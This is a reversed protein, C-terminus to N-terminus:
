AVSSRPPPSRWNCRGIVVDGPGQGSTEVIMHLDPPAVSYDDRVVTGELRAAFRAGRENLGIYRVDIEILGGAECAELTIFSDIASTSFLDGPIAGPQGFQTRGNIRLDEIIWDAAGGVTGDDDIELREMQFPASQVRVTITTAPLKSDAPLVVKSAVVTPFSPPGPLIPASSSIPVITPRQPPPTGIASAFFPVGDPNSGVYTVVIALERGYEVPDFGAISFTTAAKRSAAVGRSGFLAGSLDKVALQSRGDVEIDNVVWDSAGGETGAGSIIIRDIDVAGEKARVAARTPQHPPVHPHHLPLVARSARSPSEKRARVLQQLQEPLSKGLIRPLASAGPPPAGEEAPDPLPEETPAETGTLQRWAAQYSEGTKAQRERVRRQLARDRKKEEDSMPFRENDRGLQGAGIRENSCLSIWSRM